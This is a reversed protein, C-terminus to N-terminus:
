SKLILILTYCGVAVLWRNVPQAVIFPISTTLAGHIDNM